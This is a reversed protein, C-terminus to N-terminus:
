TRSRKLRGIRPGITKPRPRWKPNPSNQAFGLYSERAPETRADPNEIRILSNIAPRASVVQPQAMNGMPERFRSLFAGRFLSKTVHPRM